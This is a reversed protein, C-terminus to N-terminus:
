YKRPFVIKWRGLCLISKLFTQRYTYSTVFLRPVHIPSTQSIPHYLRPLVRPSFLISATKILSDLLLSAAQIIVRHYKQFVEGLLIESKTRYQYTFLLRDATSEIWNPILRCHIGFGKQRWILKLITVYSFFIFLFGTFYSGVESRSVDPWM